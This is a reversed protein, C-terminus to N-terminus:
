TDEGEFTRLSVQTSYKEVAEPIENRNLLTAIQQLAEKTPESYTLGPIPYKKKNLIYILDSSIKRLHISISIPINHPILTATDTFKTKFTSPIYCTICRYHDMAPGIYWGDEGHFSRSDRKNPKAHILIRTGLLALPTKNFDFNGFLYAYSSLKPNVRSTRM